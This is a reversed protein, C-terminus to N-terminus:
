SLSGVKSLVYDATLHLVSDFEYMIPIGTEVKIQPMNEPPIGKLMGVLARISNGHASVLLTKNKALEPAIAEYFYNVVRKQTDKLSESKPLLKEDMTEYNSDYIAHRGDELSLEPPPTEYGRRIAWYAKEGLEKLVQNKNRGQWDGYHRENLKWHYHTDVHLQHASDLLIWATHIARKLYSSFCIDIVINNEKIIEGVKKAEEKGEPALDVDTWGTFINQINWESKGHRVLILRGM